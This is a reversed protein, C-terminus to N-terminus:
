KSVKNNIREGVIAEHEFSVESGGLLTIVLSHSRGVATVEYARGNRRFRERVKFDAVTERKVEEADVWVKEHRDVGSNNEDEVGVWGYFDPGNTVMKYTVGGSAMLYFISGIELERTNKQTRKIQEVGRKPCLTTDEGGHVKCIACEPVVLQLQLNKKALCYVVLGGLRYLHKNCWDDSFVGLHHIVM